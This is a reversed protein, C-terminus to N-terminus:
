GPPARKPPRPRFIQTAYLEERYPQITFRDWLFRKSAGRKPDIVVPVEFVRAYGIDEVWGKARGRERLLEDSIFPLYVETRDDGRFFLPGRQYPRWTLVCLNRM